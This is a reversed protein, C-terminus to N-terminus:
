GEYGPGPEEYVFGPEEYIVSSVPPVYAFYEIPFVVSLRDHVTFVVRGVHAQALLFQYGLSLGSTGIATVTAILGIEGVVSSFETGSVTTYTTERGRPAYMLNTVTNGPPIPKRFVEAGLSTAAPNLPLPNKPDMPDFGQSGYAVHSVVFKLGASSIQGIRTSGETTIAMLM